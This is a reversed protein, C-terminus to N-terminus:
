KGLCDAFGAVVHALLQPYTYEGGAVDRGLPDLSVLNVQVGETVADILKRNADPEYFLCRAKADQLLARAKFVASASPAIGDAMSVAGLPSLGFRAEFYQYSDHFVLYPRGALPILVREAQVQAAAIRGLAVAANERYLAANDPDVKALVKAIEALWLVANQPDLWVHPDMGGAQGRMPLRRTGAIQELAVHRADGGLNALSKQLWPTLAPGVWFVLNAQQLGRAQSPRLAFDHPSAAPGVLVDIQAHDGAVSEVLARVLAIDTVIRLPEAQLSLASFLIIVVSSLLKKMVPEQEFEPAKTTFSVNYCILNSKLFNGHGIGTKVKVVM